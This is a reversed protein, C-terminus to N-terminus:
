FDFVIREQSQHFYDLSNTTNMSLRLNLLILADTYIM